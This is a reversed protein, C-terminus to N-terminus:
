SNAKIMVEQIENDKKIYCLSMSNNDITNITYAADMPNNLITPPAFIKLNWTASTVNSSSRIGVNNIALNLGQVEVLSADFSLKTTGQTWFIGKAESGSGTYYAPRYSQGNTISLNYEKDHFKVKPVGCYINIWDDGGTRNLIVQAGTIEYKDGNKVMDFLLEIFTEYTNGDETVSLNGMEFKYKAM